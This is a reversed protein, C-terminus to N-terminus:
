ARPPWAVAIRTSTASAPEMRASTSAVRAVYPRSSAANLLAVSPGIGAGRASISGRSNSRPMAVFIRPVNRPIFYWIPAMSRVPPPAITFM